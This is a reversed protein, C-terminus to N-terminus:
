SSGTEFECQPLSALDKLNVRLYGSSLHKKGVSVVQQRSWIGFLEVDTGEPHACAIIMAGFDTEPKVQVYRTNLNERTVWKFKVQVPIGNVHGDIDKSGKATRVMGFEDECFSEGLYGELGNYDKILENLRAWTKLVEKRM